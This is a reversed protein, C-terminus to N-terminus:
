NKQCFIVRLFAPRNDFQVGAFVQAPVTGPTGTFAPASNSGTPTFGVTGNTPVSAPWAVTGAPTISAVGGAPNATVASVADGTTPIRASGGTATSTMVHTGTVAATTGGQVNWTTTVTHTHNIVSSFPNGTFVPVSAPWSIPAAPVVGANGTFLPSSVTGIPTFSATSNTGSPTITDVGGGTGVNGNAAVTGLIFKGSLVSLETFGTPCATLSLFILGSPIVTSVDAKTNLATQTATSVPLGAAATTSATSLNWAGAVCTYVQGTNWNTYVVIGTTCAGSPAGMGGTSFVQAHIALASLPLLIFSLLM